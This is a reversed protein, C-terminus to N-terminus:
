VPEWDLVVQGWQDWRVIARFGEHPTEAVANEIRTRVDDPLEVDYHEGSIRPRVPAPEPVELSEVESEVETEEESTSEPEEEPIDEPSAPVVAPAIGTGSMEIGARSMYLIGQMMMTLSALVLMVGRLIGETDTAIIVFGVAVGIMSYIRRWNEDRQFGLAMQGASHVCLMGGFLWLELDTSLLWAAPVFLMAGAWGSHNSHQVVEDDSWDDWGLDYMTWSSWTLVVSEIILVFGAIEAAMDPMPDALIRAVVWAHAVPLLILTNSWRRAHAHKTMLLAGFLLSLGYLHDDALVASIFAIIVISDVLNTKREASWRADIGRFLKGQLHAIFLAVNFAFTGTGAFRIMEGGSSAWEEHSAYMLSIFLSFSAFWFWDMVGFAWAGLSLILIAAVAFWHADPVLLFAGAIVFVAPMGLPHAHEDVSEGQSAARRDVLHGFLSPAGIAILGLGAWRPLGLLAIEALNEIEPLHSIITANSALDLTWIWILWAGGLFQVARGQRHNYGRLLVILFIPLALLGGSADLMAIALLGLLTWNGGRMDKEESLGGRRVLIDGLMPGALLLGDFLLISTTLTDAPNAHLAIATPLGILFLIWAGASRTRDDKPLENLIENLLIAIPLSLMAILHLETGNGSNSLALGFLLLPGVLGLRSAPGLRMGEFMGFMPKEQQIWANTAPDWEPVTTTIRGVRELLEGVDVEVRSLGRGLVYLVLALVMAEIHMGQVDLGPIGLRGALELILIGIIAIAMRGTAELRAEEGAEIISDAENSQQWVLLLLFGAIGLPLYAGSGMLLENSLLIMLLGVNHARSSLVKERVGFHGAIILALPPVAVFLPDLQLVEFTAVSSIWGGVWWAFMMAIFTWDAVWRRTQPVTLMYVFSLLGLCWAVMAGPSPILLLALGLGIPMSPVRNKHVPYFFGILLAMWLVLNLTVWPHIVPVLLIFIAGKGAAVWQALVVLGVLAVTGKEIMSRSLVPHAAFVGQVLVIIVLMSLGAGPISLNAEYVFPAISCVIASAIFLPSRNSATALAMSLVAMSLVGILMPIGPVGEAWDLWVQAGILLVALPSLVLVMRALSGGEVRETYAWLGLAAAVFAASQAVISWAGPLWGEGGSEGQCLGTAEAGNGCVFFMAFRTMWFTGLMAFLLGFALLYEHMISLVGHRRHQFEVLALTATVAVIAGLSLWLFTLESDADAVMFQYIGLILALVGGGISILMGFQADVRVGDAPTPMVKLGPQYAAQIRGPTQIERFRSRGGENEDM